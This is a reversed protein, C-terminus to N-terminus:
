ISNVLVVKGVVGGKELLLHAKAADHMPIKAAIAPHLHGNAAQTLLDTLTDRYWDLNRAPYSLMSPSMPLKLGNPWLAILGLTLISLPIMKVGSTKTSAMGLMMLRGGRRLSRASRMLQRPGGVVDIVIDVGNKTLNRIRRVVNETQYNIATAGNEQVFGVNKTSATGYLELGALRGLQLLASGVGGSAGHILVREGPQACVTKELTLAATLYNTIIAAAVVPDLGDPVAVLTEAPRNVMQSYGKGQGFTWSAVRQGVKFASVGQGVADVIGVLDEGPTYPTKPFGFFWHKRLMLDYGSVGAAEVRIRVHGAAPPQIQSPTWTLVDPAGRRPVVIRHNPVSNM